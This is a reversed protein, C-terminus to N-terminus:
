ENCVIMKTLGLWLLACYGQEISMDDGKLLKQARLKDRKYAEYAKHVDESSGGDIRLKKLIEELESPRRFIEVVLTGNKSGLGNYDGWDIMWLKEGDHYLKLHNESVTVDKRGTYIIPYGANDMIYVGERDARIDPRGLRGVMYAEGRGKFSKLEGRPNLYYIIVM